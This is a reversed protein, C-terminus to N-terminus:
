KAAGTGGDLRRRVADVYAHVLPEALPPSCPTAVLAEAAPRYLQSLQEDEVLGHDKVRANYSRLLGKLEECKRRLPDPTLDVQELARLARETRRELSALRDRV